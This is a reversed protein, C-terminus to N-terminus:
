RQHQQKDYVPLSYIVDYLFFCPPDCHGIEALYISNEFQLIEKSQALSLQKTKGIAEVVQKM